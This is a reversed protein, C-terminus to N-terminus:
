GEIRDSGDECSGKFFCRASTRCVRIAIGCSSIPLLERNRDVFETIEGPYFTLKWFAKGQKEYQYIGFVEVEGDLHVFTQQSQELLEVIVSRDEVTTM